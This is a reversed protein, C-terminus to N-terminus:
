QEVRWESITRSGTDFNVGVKVVPRHDAAYPILYDKGEIQQLAAEASGDLKFEFVYITDRTKLVADARGSASKVESRYHAGMLTFIIHFITQYHNENFRADRGECCMVKDYPISALFSQMRTMCRDVEHLRLDKVMAVVSLGGTVEDVGMYAPILARNFGQRVEENPYALTYTEEDADYDKITLYGSQYLVPIPNRMRETPVNFSEATATMNELSLVDMQERRLLEVLFTPTGTDFWYNRYERDALANILSYPNYIDPSHKSFHYGDYQYKLHAVAEGYTEGNAEAMEAIYPKMQTLLEEETIGCIASYADNMSINKLNNLESFISMQSFKSIGTLFVFRLCDGMDKIPSYFDRTINRLRDQLEPNGNSDLMPSDYEDVLLVVGLGTQEYASRIINKLRVSYSGEAACRYEKEWQSLYHTIVENLHQEDTYKSIAFSIHLVPHQQWEQELKEMALGTFLEKQGKFYAELTTVLLSKGFRRPRSLFCVDCEHTLRYILETKDVYFMNLRRLKSFHQVGLPLRQLANNM